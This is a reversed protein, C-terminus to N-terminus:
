YFRTLLVYFLIYTNTDIVRIKLLIDLIYHFLGMAYVLLFKHAISHQIIFIVISQACKYKSVKKTFGNMYFLFIKM